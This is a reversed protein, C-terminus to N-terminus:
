ERAKRTRVLLAGNACRCSNGYDYWADRPQAFRIERVESLPVTNLLSVDGAYVGDVYVAIEPRSSFGLARTSGHLFHPRLHRVADLTLMDSSTAIESATLVEFDLPARRARTGASSTREYGSTTACATAVLALCLGRIVPARM